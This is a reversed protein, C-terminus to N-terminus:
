FLEQQNHKKLDLERRRKEQWEDVTPSKTIEMAAKFVATRTLRGKLEPTDGESYKERQVVSTSDCSYFPFKAVVRNDTMRLGHIKVKISRRHYIEDFALSLRNQCAEGLIHEHPGCAGIAVMDFQNCLRLLRDISEVTHWVPVAKDIFERPVSSILRDNDEEGGEIVDPIFFYDIEHYHRLLWLYFKTWHKDWDFGNLNGNKKLRKWLSFAGNDFWVKKGHKIVLETQTKGMFSVLGGCEGTGYLHSCLEEVEPDYKSGSFPSGHVHIM